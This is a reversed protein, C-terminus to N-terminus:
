ASSVQANETLLSGTRAWTATKGGDSLTADSVAYRDDGVQLTWYSPIPRDLRLVANGTGYTLQAVRYRTNRDFPTARNWFSDGTLADSCPSAAFCGTLTTGSAQVTLTASWVTNPRPDRNPVHAPLLRTNNTVSRGSFSAVNRIGDASRIKGGSSPATYSVSVTQGLRVATALTLTVTSGSVAVGSPIAGSATGVAVRFASRPPTGAAAPDLAEDFVIALSADEVAASSVAPPPRDTNNTVSAGSFSATNRIGDASRIRGGTAPATYSVSVMQGQTVPTALTLRVTQGSVSVGSPNVGAGSGVTVTFASAAPTGGAGTDLAQDFVIALSRGDVTVSSVAPGTNVRVTATNAAAAAAGFSDVVRFTFTALGEYAAVPDFVLAGSDLQARTVTKPLASSPIVAGDLELKGAAAAPLTVIRIEKLPDGDSDAIPFDALAFALDADEGTRRVVDSGTPAANTGRVKAGTLTVGAHTLVANNNGGLIGSTITAGSGSKLQILKGHKAVVAVGDADNDGAQVTYPGFILADDEASRLPLARETGGIDLVIGINAPTGGDNADVTVHRAAFGGFRVIVDLSQGAILTDAAGDLDADVRMETEVFSGVVGTVSLERANVTRKEGDSVAAHSLDADRGGARITSGGHHALANAGVTLASSDSLGTTDDQMIEYRFVLAAAGSRGSDYLAWKDIAAGGADVFGTLKLRPTRTVTMAQNFTVMVEIHNGIKGYRRFGSDRVPEKTFAVDTIEIPPPTKNTVARDSFGPVPRRANDADRLPNSSPATYRVKVTEGRRVASALTLTATAGSVAVGGDAVNRRETGVTVHFDGPAPM